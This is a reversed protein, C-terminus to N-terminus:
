LQGPHRTITGPIGSGEHSSLLIELMVDRHPSKSKPTTYISSLTQRSFEERGVLERIECDLMAKSQTDRERRREREREMQWREKERTSEDVRPCLLYTSNNVESTPAKKAAVWIPRPGSGTGVVSVNRM